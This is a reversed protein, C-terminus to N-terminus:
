APLAASRKNSQVLFLSCCLLPWTLLGIAAMFTVIQLWGILMMCFRYDYLAMKPQPVRL